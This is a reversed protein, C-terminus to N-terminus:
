VTIGRYWRMAQTYSKEPFQNNGENLEEILKRYSDEQNEQLRYLKKWSKNLFNDFVDEDLLQKKTVSDLSDEYKSRPSFFPEDINLGIGGKESPIFFVGRDKEEDVKIKATNKKKDRIYEIEVEDGKDKKHIQRTLDQLSKV